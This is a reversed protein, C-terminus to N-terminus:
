PTYGMKKAKGIYRESQEYDGNFGLSLGLFYLAKANDPDLAVASRAHVLAQEYAGISISENVLNILDEVSSAGQIASDEIEQKRSLQKNHQYAMYWISDELIKGIEDVFSNYNAAPVVYKKNVLEISGAAYDKTRTLERRVDFYGYNRVFDEGEFIAAYEKDPRRLKLSFNMKSPFGFQFDHARNNAYTLGGLGMFETILPTIGGAVTVQESFDQESEPFELSAELRYAGRSNEEKNYKMGTIIASPYFAKIVRKLEYDINQTNNHWAKLRNGYIGTMKMRYTGKLRSKELYADVVVEVANSSPPDIPIELLRGGSGNLIFSKRGQLTWDLGPFESAQGSTDFWAGKNLGPVYVIMHSFSMTPISESVEIQPFYGVLAPYATIGLAKLMSVALTAQDKCDGYKNHLIETAMHPRIGGRRVDAQVYRVNDQLYYYVAKVKDETSMGEQALSQAVEEIEKDVRSVRPYYLSLKQDIEKWQAMSSLDIVPLKNWLPPMGIEIEVGPLSKAQWTLEETEGSKRNRPKLKLNRIDSYLKINRPKIIKFESVRVPDVRISEGALQPNYFILRTYWANELVSRSAKETIQYEFTAGPEVSPLSFALQREDSFYGKEQPSKVQVADKSVTYEVGKASILRAFDLTAESFHSNFWHSIESYERAAKEDLISVAVYYTTQHSWDSELRVEESYRHVVAGAKKEAETPKFGAVLKKLPEFEPQAHAIPPLLFGALLWLLALRSQFINPPLFRNM